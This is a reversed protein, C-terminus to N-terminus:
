EPSFKSYIVTVQIDDYRNDSGGVLKTSTLSMDHVIKVISGSSNSTMTVPVIVVKNWNESARGENKLAMMHTVLESVNNFTYTNDENDDGSLTYSSSANTALFSQENDIIDGNEFFSYLSDKQVMLLSSPTDLTYEGQVTNNIRTLVIRATNLTDNEHGEMIEEVPLTMETFIGAPTKLYTCTNDDVLEQLKGEDNTIKTTQLVEETASFPIYTHVTDENTYDLFVNIRSLEVYAMSGIGERTKIYFGPFVKHIFTYSNKFYEPHAHYTRMLYTGFNNYTVGNADTYPDNLPVCINTSYSDSDRQNQTVRQDYITYVVNKSIGDERIYGAEEPDFNSYYMVNEELPTGMEMATVKMVATSDGFYDTCFLRLECSDAIVDGNEDRSLISDEPPFMEYDELVNFQVMYDGTIYVGTEPDKIKGVYGILNRSYVSDALISRTTVTFTDTAVNVQDMDDTLSQGVTETTDDCSMVCWLALLVAAAYFVSKM